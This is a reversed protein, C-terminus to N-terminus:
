AELLQEVLQPYGRATLADVARRGRLRKVLAREGSDGSVRVVEALGRAYRSINNTEGLWGALRAEGSRNTRGPISQGYVREQGRQNFNYSEIVFVVDGPRLFEANSDIWM